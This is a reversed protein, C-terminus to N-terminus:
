KCHIKLFSIFNPFALNLLLLKFKGERKNLPKLKLITKHNQSKQWIYKWLPITICHSIALLNLLLSLAVQILHMILQTLRINNFCNKKLKLQLRSNSHFKWAPWPHFLQFQSLCFRFMLEMQNLCTHPCSLLQLPPLHWPWKSCTTKPRSLQNLGLLTSCDQTNRTWHTTQM